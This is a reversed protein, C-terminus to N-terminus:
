VNVKALLALIEVQVFKRGPCDRKGIGFNHMLKPSHPTFPPTRKGDMERLIWREPLFHKAQYFNVDQMSAYWSQCM